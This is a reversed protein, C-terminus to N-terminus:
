PELERIIRLASSTVIEECRLGPQEQINYFFDGRWYRDAQGELTEGPFNIKILNFDGIHEPAEPEVKEVEYLYQRNPNDRFGVKTFFQLTAETPCGFCATLRSPLHGFRAERVEEFVRETEWYPHHEGTKRIIRGWNGPRITKGPSLRIQAAHFLPMRQSQWLIPAPALGVGEQM